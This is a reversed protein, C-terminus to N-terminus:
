TTRANGDRAGWGNAGALWQRVARADGRELCTALGALERQLRRVLPLVAGANDALIAAWVDPHSGALRTVDRGGTGLDGRSVGARDLVRGLAASVVQPVHSAAGMFRDHARATTTVPEAGIGRWLARVARVVRPRSEPTPTLFVKAHAFMGRRSAVWGSRHDGAFPHGGVFHAGLGAHSAARVISQKTSGVDTVVPIRALVDRADRVFTVAADVPIAIVCVTCGDAHELNDAAGGAVIGARGAARLAAADRDYALVQHGTAILDRALSGGILGLGVIAVKM